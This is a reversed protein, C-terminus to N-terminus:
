VELLDATISCNASSVKKISETRDNGNVTIKDIKVRGRGIGAEGGLTMIGLQLDYLAASLLQRQIGSLAGSEFCITLEGKGGYCIESTFLGTNKPGGTFRDIANRTIVVEKGGTIETEEFRLLSRSYDNTKPDNIGFMKNGISQDLGLKECLGIIHHRFAGAWASGSILPNGSMNKLPVKDPSSGEDEPIRDSTPNSVSFNGDILINAKIWVLKESKDDEGTLEDADKFANTSHASFKMWQEIQEPFSFVLKRASVSMEGYGRTTRSGFSVGSSIVSKLLPDMIEEVERSYDEDAGNWEVICSYSQGTEATEFDFKNKVSGWKSLSVGDRKSIIVVADDPLVADGVILHSGNAEGNEISGFIRCQMDEPIMSRFVGAISSGPIFPLGRGDLMLDSDTRESGVNGIRLPSKQEFCIEYYVKKRM